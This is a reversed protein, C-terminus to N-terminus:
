PIIPVIMISARIDAGAARGPVPGPAAPLPMRRPRAGRRHPARGPRPLVDRPSDDLVPPGAAGPRLATMDRGLTGPHPWPETM